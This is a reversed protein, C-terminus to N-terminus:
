GTQRVYALWSIGGALNSLPPAIGPTSAPAVWALGSVSQNITTAGLRPDNGSLFGINAFSTQGVSSAVVSLYYQGPPITIPKSLNTMVIGTPSAILDIAPAASDLGLVPNGVPVMNSDRKYLGVTAQQTGGVGKTALFIGWQDITISESLDIPSFTQYNGAILTTNSISTPYPFGNFARIINAGGIRWDPTGITNNFGM